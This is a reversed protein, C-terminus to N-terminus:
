RRWRLDVESDFGLALFGGVKRPGNEDYAYKDISDVVIFVRLFETVLCRLTEFLTEISLVRAAQHGHYKSLAQLCLPVDVRRRALQDIIARLFANLNRKQLDDCNLFYYVVVTQSGDDYQRDLHEIMKASRGAIQLLDYASETITSENTDRTCDFIAYDYDAVGHRLAQEYDPLPDPASLWKRIKIVEADSLM